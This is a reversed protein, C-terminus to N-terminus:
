PMVFITDYRFSAYSLSSLGDRRCSCSLHALRQMGVDDVYVVIRDAGCTLNSLM